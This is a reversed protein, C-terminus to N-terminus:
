VRANPHFLMAIGSAQGPPGMIPGGGEQQSNNNWSVGDRYDFLAVGNIFVGINGLTTPTPTGTNETPNLPFKFIANQDSALSPNGDMFPGTVYAPIGHTSVYVWQTSYQVLQCNALVNDQIPTSNGQVYHRGMVTTNQLWETIIPNDQAYSSISTAIVIAFAAIKFILKNM